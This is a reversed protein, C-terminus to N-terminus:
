VICQRTRDFLEMMRTIALRCIGDGNDSLYVILSLIPMRAEARKHMRCHRIGGIIIASRYAVFKQGSSLHGLAAATLADDLRKNGVWLTIQDKTWAKREALAMNSPWDAPAIGNSM